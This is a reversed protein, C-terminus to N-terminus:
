KAHCIMTHNLLLKIVSYRDELTMYKIFLFLCGLFYLNPFKHSSFLIHLPFFCIDQNSLSLIATVRSESLPM